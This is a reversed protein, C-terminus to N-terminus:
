TSWSKAPRNFLSCRRDFPFRERQGHLRSLSWLATASAALRLCCRRRNLISTSAIAARGTLFMKDTEARDVPEVEAVQPRRCQKM